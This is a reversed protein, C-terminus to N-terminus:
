VSPYEDAVVTMTTSRPFKAIAKILNSQTHIASTLLHENANSGTRPRGYADAASRPRGAWRHRNTATQLREYDITPTRSREPHSAKSWPLPWIHKVTRHQHPPRRHNEFISEAGVGWRAPAETPSRPEVLFRSLHATNQHSHLRFKTPLPAILILISIVILILILILILSVLSESKLPSNSRCPRSSLM